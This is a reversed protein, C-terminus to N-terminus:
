EIDYPNYKVRVPNRKKLSFQNMKSRLIVSFNKKNNTMFVLRAESNQENINPGLVNLDEIEGFESNLENVESLEGTVVYTDKVPYLNTEQRIRLEQELYWDSSQKVLSQIIRNNTDLNIFVKGSNAKRDVLSIANIWKRYTDENSSLGTRALYLYADLIILASYPTDSIPEAGPTAVVISKENKIKRLINQGGSTIIKVGPFAKGIEEVIKKQGSVTTAYKTSKCYQCQWFTVNKACWKCQLSENKDSKFLPGSCQNCRLSERCELCQLNSSYGLRPVQILVNSRQLGEQIIKWASSPIMRSKEMPDDSYNWSIEPWFEEKSAIMIESIKENKIDFYTKISKGFGCFILQSNSIKSRNLSVQRVNWYPAQQSYYNEECDDWVIILGLNQVPAFVANRTGVVVDIQSTLIELFSEYRPGPEQEASLIKFIINNKNLYDTFNIVDNYKPFIVITQRSNEKVEKIVNLLYKYYDYNPPFEICNTKNSINKLNLESSSSKNPIFSKYKKEIKAQRPPICFRLSDNLTGIFQDSTIRCLDIIEPRLVPIESIVKEIKSLKKNEHTSKSREIVWGELNRGAFKIKVKVGPQCAEDLEEPIEYDFPYDLHPLSIDLIVKAVALHQALDSVGAIM